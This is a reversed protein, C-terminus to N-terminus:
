KLQAAMQEETLLQPVPDPKWDMLERLRKRDNSDLIWSDYQGYDAKFGFVYKVAVWVRKYWPLYHNLAVELGFEEYDPDADSYFRITHAIDSCACDFHEYKRFQIM